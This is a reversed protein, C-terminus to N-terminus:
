HVPRLTLEEILHLNYKKVIALAAEIEAPVAMRHPQHADCGLIVTNGCKSAIQWFIDKPYQRGEAIGLLNIELPIDLEKAAKCLRTMERRYIGDDGVYHILDPHALYSFRGTKLGEIVQDVYLALRDADEMQKSCPLEGPEENRLFHQGLILYEVPYPKIFELMRPFVSPYYEAELGILLEIQGRYKERLALLTEIYDPFQELTMRFGSYHGDTFPMPAHDAFGLVKIGRAIAL